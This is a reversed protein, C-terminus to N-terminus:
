YVMMFLDQLENIVMNDINILSERYQMLLETLSRNGFAGTRNRTYVDDTNSLLDNTSQQTTDTSSNQTAHVVDKNTTDTSNSRDTTSNNKTTSEEKSSGTQNGETLKTGYDLDAYNAQPLDSELNKTTQTRTGNTTSSGTGSFTEGGTDTVNGTFNDTTDGTLNTKANGNADYKANEQLKKNGVYSEHSNTDSLWDYDKITTAYLKNYYPMILNLREELYFKWLGVTEFGIEKNFYHMLIKKEITTRYEELWIPFDFNFIKPCALTVRQSIPLDLNESTVQEVIWRVQTTYKSLIKLGAKMLRKVHFM